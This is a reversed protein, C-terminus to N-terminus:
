AVKEDDISSFGDEGQKEAAEIQELYNQTSVVKIRKDEEIDRRAKGALAGGQQAADLNENFGQADEQVALTRTVEESLATFILELPTMHDRLNEKGLGKLAKHESPSVGFTNKAIQATLLAYEPSEKVGRQKWEDTLQKRTEISQMRREIWENTYGKARYIEKIREFGLEPDQMDEMKERGVQALWQRFPEAKPSPVSMIMRLVGETNAADMTYNKGDKGKFKLQKWNPFMEIGADELIKKRLRSWYVRPQPSDTLVEIIDVLNFYMEGDYVEHRIDKQEFVAIQNDMITLNKFSFHSHM